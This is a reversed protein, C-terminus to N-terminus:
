IAKRYFLRIVMIWTEINLSVIPDQHTYSLSSESSLHSLLRTDVMFELQSCEHFDLLDSIGWELCSGFDLLDFIACPILAESKRLGSLISMKQMSVIKEWLKCFWRKWDLVVFYGSAGRSPMKENWKSFVTPLYTSYTEVSFCGLRTHEQKLSLHSQYPHMDQQTTTFTNPKFHIPSM